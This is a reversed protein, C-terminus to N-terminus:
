RLNIGTGFSSPVAPRITSTGSPAPVSRAALSPRVGTTGTSGSPAGTGRTQFYRNQSMLQTSHGTTTLRPQAASLDYGNPLEELEQVQGAIQQQGYAIQQNTRLQELQPRVLTTYNFGADGGRRLLNLYPSVVPSQGYPSQASAREAAIGLFGIAALILLSRNM